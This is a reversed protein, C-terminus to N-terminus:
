QADKMEDALIDNIRAGNMHPLPQYRVAMPGCRAADLRVSKAFDFYKRTKSMAIVSTDCTKHAPDYHKCTKCLAPTIVHRAAM